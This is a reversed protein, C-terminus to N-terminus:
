ILFTSNEESWQLNGQSERVNGSKRQCEKVNGSKGQGLHFPCTGRVKRSRILVSREQFNNLSTTDFRRSIESHPIFVKGSIHFSTLVTSCNRLELGGRCGSYFIVPGKFPCSVLSCYMNIM